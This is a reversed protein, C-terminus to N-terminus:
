SVAVEDPATAAGEREATSTGAATPADQQMLEGAAGCEDDDSWAADEDAENVSLPELPAGVTPARSREAVGAAPQDTMDRAASLIAELPPRVIPTRLAVDDFLTPQGDAPADTVAVTLCYHSLLMRWEELEDLMELRCVRQREEASLVVDFFQLMELSDCRGWGSTVCRAEQARCDPVDSLSLLPCGRHCLNQVMTRGFPDNPHVMEYGVYVARRCRERGFFTLLARSAAPVLYILVCEAIVLTPAAPDWGSGGLAAELAPIDNLDVGVLHYGCSSHITDNTVCSDGEPLAARLAAKTAVHACKHQVVSPQDVEIYLRPAAGASQLQWFLTDYGAGLSIIQATDSPAAALFQECVSAIAAVRAYQGRNILPGPTMDFGSRVFNKAFDDRWYGLGVGALKGRVAHSATAALGEMKASM